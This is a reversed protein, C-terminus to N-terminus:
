KCDKFRIDTTGNKVPNIRINTINKINGSLIINNLYKNLKSSTKPKLAFIWTNNDKKFYLDFNKELYEYKGSKIAKIIKFIQKNDQASYTTVSNLPYLTEFIIENNQSIKFNGGSTVSSASTLTKTQSFKCSVPKLQPLQTKITKANKPYNFINNQAFVPLALLIIFITLYKKLM